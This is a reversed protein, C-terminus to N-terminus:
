ETRTVVVSWSRHSDRPPLGLYVNEGASVTSVTGQQLSGGNRPDYWFVDYDGVADSLDLQLDEYGDLYIIYLHDKRAYCFPARDGGPNGVLGNDTSMYPLHRNVEPSSFLQRANAMLRQTGEIKRFDELTIDRADRVGYGLYQTMGEGGAMVTKWYYDEARDYSNPEIPWSEDNSVIWKHGNAASTNRWYIIERHHEQHLQMWAGDFFDLGLLSGYKNRQESKRHSSHSGVPHNYPDLNSLVQAADRMQSNSMLPEEGINYRFGLHHGFRAIMERYYIRYTLGMNGNDLDLNNIAESLYFDAAVGKQDMHDFVINWQALKSVDYELYRLRDVWPWSNDADDTSTNIIMYLTTAGISSLYNIAGIIGKGKGGQWVPDGAQWDAVHPLYKHLGEGGTEYLYDDKYQTDGSKIPHDYTNDFDKFGFFDEPSGPGSKVFWEGNGKFQAYHEGVYTLMGKAYFGPADPNYPGVTFQGTRGHIGEVPEGANPNDSIAINNGTRFSVTYTWQGSRDPTFKVRWKNGTNASTEAANGDAAFFGPVRYQHDGQSFTVDMRYHRFTSESENVSPGDFTLTAPYWLHEPAEISVPTEPEPKPEPDIFDPVISFSVQHAEAILQYDGLTLGKDGPNPFYDGTATNDGFLTYPAVSETRTHSVPGSLRVVVRGEYSAPEFSLSYSSPILARKIKMKDTIQLVKTDSQSDVLWFDSAESTNANIAGFAFALALASNPKIPKFM